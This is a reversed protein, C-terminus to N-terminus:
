EDDEPTWPGRLKAKAAIIDELSPEAQNGLASRIDELMQPGGAIVESIVGLARPDILNFGGLIKFVVDVIALIGIM